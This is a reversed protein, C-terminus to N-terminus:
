DICLCDVGADVDVDANVDADVFVLGLVVALSSLVVFGISIPFRKRVGQLKIGSFFVPNFV